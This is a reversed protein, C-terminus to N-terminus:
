IFSDNDEKLVVGKKILTYTTYFIALFVFMILLSTFDSNFTYEGAYFDFGLAGVIFIGQLSILGWMNNLIQKLYRLNNATFFHGQQMNNILNKLSNAISFLILALIIELILAGFDLTMNNLSGDIPISRGGIPMNTTVQDRLPPIAIVVGVFLFMAAAFAFVGKAIVSLLSLFKLSFKIGKNM